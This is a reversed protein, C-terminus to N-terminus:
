ASTVAWLGRLAGALLVATITSVVVMPVWEFEPNVAGLVASAMAALMAVASLRLKTNLTM